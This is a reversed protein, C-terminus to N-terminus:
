IAALMLYASRTVRVLLINMRRRGQQHNNFARSRGLKQRRDQRHRSRLNPSHSTRTISIQPVSKLM